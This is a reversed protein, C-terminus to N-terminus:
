GVRCCRVVDDKEINSAGALLNDCSHSSTQGGSHDVVAVCVSTKPQVLFDDAATCAVSGTMGNIDIKVTSDDYPQEIVINENDIVDFCNFPHGPNPTVEAQAVVFIVGGLIVIVGLIMFFYRKEINVELKM